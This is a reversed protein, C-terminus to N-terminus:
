SVVSGFLGISSVNYKGALMPKLQKLENLINDLQMM